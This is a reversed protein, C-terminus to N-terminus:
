KKLQNLIYASVDAIDQDSFKEYAFFPMAKVGLRIHFAIPDIRDVDFKNLKPTKKIKSENSHCFACAEKFIQEGRENNGQLALIKPKDEKKFKEKDPKPLAITTYKSETPTGDKLLSSFYENLSQIQEETLPEDNLLYQKWCITSGGANKTVDDGVFKGNYTSQRKNAGIVNSFYKTLPSNTNTGDSHCDACKLGNEKSISYFLDKGKQALPTLNGDVKQPTVQQEQKSIQKDKNACSEILTLLPFIFLLLIFILIKKTM